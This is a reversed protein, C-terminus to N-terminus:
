PRNGGVLGGARPALEADCKTERGHQGPHDGPLLARLSRRGDIHGALTVPGHRRRETHETPPGGNM